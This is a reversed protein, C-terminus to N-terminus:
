KKKQNDIKLVKALAFKKVYATVQEANQAKMVASFNTQTALFRAMFWVDTEATRINCVGVEVDNASPKAAFVIHFGQKKLHETLNTIAPLTKLNCQFSGSTGLSSWLAKFKAVSLAKDFGAAEEERRRREEEEKQRRENLVRAAEMLQQDTKRRREAEEAANDIELQRRREERERVAREREEREEKERDQQIDALQLTGDGSKGAELEELAPAPAPEPVVEKKKSGRFWRTVTKYIRRLLKNKKGRQPPEKAAKKPKAFLPVHAYHKAYASAVAKVLDSCQILLICPMGVVFICSQFLSVDSLDMVREPPDPEAIIGGTDIGDIYYSIELTYYAQAALYPMLFIITCVYYPFIRALTVDANWDSVKKFTLFTACALWLSFIFMGFFFVVYVRMLNSLLGRNTTLSAWNRVLGLTIFGVCLSPFSVVWMLGLLTAGYKPSDYYETERFNDWAQMTIILLSFSCITQFVAFKFLNRKLRRGVTKGRLAKILAYGLEGEFEADPNEKRNIARSHTGEANFVLDDEVEESEEM